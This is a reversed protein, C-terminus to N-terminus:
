ALPASFLCPCVFVCRKLCAATVMIGKMFAARNGYVSSHNFLLMLDKVALNRLPQRLESEFAHQFDKLANTLPMSEEEGEGEGEDDDAEGQEGEDESEEKEEKKIKRGLRWSLKMWSM